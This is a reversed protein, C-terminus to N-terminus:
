EGRSMLELREGLLRDIVQREIDASREDGTVQYWQKRNSATMLRYDINEVTGPMHLPNM